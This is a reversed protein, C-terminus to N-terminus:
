AEPLVFGLGEDEIERSTTEPPSDTRRALGIVRFAWLTRCLEFDSLPTTGCLEGVSREATLAELLSMRELTLTMTPTVEAYREARSYRADLGGIAGNVRTWSDIRRIGEVILDPTSIKLTIAEASAAGEQLRYQGETWQFASYIIEQTHEVVSRVLDKPALAGQEILIAGLRKGPAIALSADTYQKLTLRGRRLLLEGLRDDPSSSSAFVLRGEQVIVSKGVGAQTLTLSGTWRREHLSQVLSPFDREALSGQLKM